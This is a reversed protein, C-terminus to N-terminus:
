KKVPRFDERLWDDLLSKEYRLTDARSMTIRMQFALDRLDREGEKVVKGDADFLKFALKMRPPYIDKVIRVDQAQPGRWPEFDGALDIDSFTVVLKQDKGIFFRDAREVLYDKIQDLIGDRGKESGMFDDKVDTFKEPATFLVETRAPTKPAAAARLAQTAVLGLLVITLLRTTKM